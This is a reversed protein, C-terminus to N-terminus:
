KKMLFLIGVISFAIGIWNHLNIKEKYFFLGIFILTLFILANCLVYGYSMPWDSRYFLLYGVDIGIITLGVAFSAWNLDKLSALIGNKIPFFPLILLSGILAVSFTVIISLLPHAAKAVSKQFIHYGVNSCVVLLLSFWIISM